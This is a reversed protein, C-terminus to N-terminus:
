WRALGLCAGDHHMHEPFGIPIVVLQLSSIEDVHVVDLDVRPLKFHM